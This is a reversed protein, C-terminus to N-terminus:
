DLVDIVRSADVGELLMAGAAEIQRRWFEETGPSHAQLMIMLKEYARLARSNRRVLGDPHLVSERREAETMERRTIDFLMSAMLTLTHNGACRVVELHFEAASTAFREPDDVCERSRQVILELKALSEQIVEHDQRALLGAALPEIGARAQWIDLLTTGTLQLALATSRATATITPVTVRAGSRSGRRLELLGESELIRLAERLVPRSVGFDGMLTSEYPLHDGDRLEGNVIMRRLRRAVLESTKPPRVGPSPALRVRSGGARRAARETRM